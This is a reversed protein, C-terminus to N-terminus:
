FIIQQAPGFYRRFNTELSKSLSELSVGKIDAVRQAIIGVRAPENIKGRFPVPSLYPSDTEVFIRDTPAYLVLPELGGNKFTVIGSFSVMYGSDLLRRLSDKSGTFCHFVVKEIGIERCHDIVKDESGRSHVIAPISLKKATELQFLFVPVQLDLDPYRPNGADLGIEGVAIVKEAKLFTSLRAEWNEPLDETDFPSIGAAAFLGSHNRSQALVTETTELSTGANVICTVGAENARDLLASLDEPSRDYLHAHIDIM